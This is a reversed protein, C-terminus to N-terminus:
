NNLALFSECFDHAKQTSKFIGYPIESKFVKKYAQIVLHISLSDVLFSECNILNNEYLEYTLLQAAEISFTGKAKRLDVHLPMPHGISLQSVSKLYAEATRKDLKRRSDPNTLECYIIGTGKTWFTANEHEIKVKM